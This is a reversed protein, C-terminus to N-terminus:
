SGRCRQPVCLVIRTVVDKMTEIAGFIGVGHAIQQAHIEVDRFKQGAIAAVESEVIDRRRQLNRRHQQFAIESGRQADAIEGDAIGFDFGSCRGERDARDHRLALM